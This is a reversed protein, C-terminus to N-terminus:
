NPKLNPICLAPNLLFNNFSDAGEVSRNIDSFYEPKM